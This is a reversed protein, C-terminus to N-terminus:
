VSEADRKAVVLYIPDMGWNGTSPEGEENWRSELM